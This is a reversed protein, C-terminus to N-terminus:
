GTEIDYVVIGAAGGECAAVLRAGAARHDPHGDYRLHADRDRFTIVFGHGHDPSKREFDRNPGAAFSLMGEVAPQLAALAAMCADIEPGPVEPRVNLFVCHILM